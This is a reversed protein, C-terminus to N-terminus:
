AQAAPENGCKAEITKGLNRTVEIACRAVADADVQLCEAFLQKQANLALAAIEKPKGEIIIQM